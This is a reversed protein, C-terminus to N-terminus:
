VSPLSQLHQRCSYKPPHTPQAACPEPLAAIYSASPSIDERSPVAHELFALARQPGQNEFACRLVVTDEYFAMEGFVSAGGRLPGAGGLSGDPPVIRERLGVPDEEAAPKNAV